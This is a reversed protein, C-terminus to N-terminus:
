ALWWVFRSAASMLVASALAPHAPTEVPLGNEEAMARCWAALHHEGARREIGLRALARDKVAGRQEPHRVALVIEARVADDDVDLFRLAVVGVDGPSM